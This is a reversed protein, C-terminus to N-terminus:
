RPKVNQDGVPLIVHVHSYITLKIVVVHRSELMLVKKMETVADAQPLEKYQFIGGAEHRM